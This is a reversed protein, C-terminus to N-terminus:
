YPYASVSIHIIFTTQYQIHRNSSDYSRARVTIRYTSSDKLPEMTYVIGRGEDTRILFEMQPDNLLVTFVTYPLYQDHQNYATLRILDQRDKSGAPLAITKFEIIDAYKAGPPCPINPDVCELVCYNTTPDRAYDPPCPIDICTYSGRQNFCMKEPGCNVNQEVCENIDKCSYGDKELRYGPPCSCTYSGRTNTCNHQCVSVVEACEDRDICPQGPGRSTFGAPCDCRYAGDTNVCLQNYYCKHQREGCEDIDQCQGSETRKYGTPCTKLCTFSGEKNICEEGSRCNSGGEYCENIDRCVRGNLLQYGSPCSCMFSGKTNVCTHSCPSTIMDCEDLDVCKGNDGLRYGPLCTCRYSGVLNQCSQECISPNEICENRDVCLDGKEDRKFGKPCANVCRFSGPTNLCDMDPGCDTQSLSCENIDQCTRSDQSLLFGIPCSCTFSGPGNLCIHSCPNSQACEDDDKCYSQRSELQFGTPCRNSPKGPGISAEIVYSIADDGPVIEVQLGKTTLQQVLYPMQGLTSEYNITHNWAYPLIVGDGSFSRSSHAYITGPGTQIYEEQFPRLHINKFPGLEPVEGRIIVDFQLNGKSDTGSIYHSMKLVEGTAFEVQVERTFNGKTLTYGNVAGDIEQATSWYVPTLLSVLHQLYKAASPPINGVTAEVRTMGNESPIINASIIADAIDVNNIYGILNGYAKRPLVFCSGLNCDMIQSTDGWCRRGGFSPQICERTRKKEGLGCTSSCASWDSWESFKGDVPCGQTNCYEMEEGSGACPQGSGSPAPNSCTRVRKRQGGGCTLTCEGWVSWPAWNGHVPCLEIVCNTNEVSPGICDRGGNEPRPNDCTRRRTKSGKGCSTSCAGWETWPSYEGHVSLIVTPLEM